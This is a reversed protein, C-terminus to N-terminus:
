GAAQLVPSPRVAASAMRGNPAYTSTFADPRLQRLVQQHTEIARALLTNNHKSVRRIRHILVNVENILAELLPRVEVAFLPLLSRLTVSALQGNTLAFAAVAEERVLRCDHLTRVQAEIDASLQLVGDADRAFLRRQQQEFLHLLGGYEAIENRLSDAIPTWANNM